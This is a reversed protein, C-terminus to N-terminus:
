VNTSLDSERWKTVTYRALTVGDAWFDPPLGAKRKLHSFFQRPDPLQEWVQPLFTGRHSAYEFIVGDIGPRLQGVADDESAFRMPESASLLSIEVLTTKLETATLPQFRPDLFAAAKANAKVDDLLKRHAQLSGICGRLQGHRTLTVFCAGHQHLFDHHEAAEFGMGLVGGIASRAIPILVEGPDDGAASDDPYFAFSAYGVVRSPDGATDGSNRLDLLRPGLGRRGAAVLLGNVPAAGCAQHPDIVPQRGLIQRVTSRDTAQAQAYTLYHSLDSSVVILTEDGGWLRDIVQAVEDPSARGVVLPVLTFHELVSQLFPLHVELSHELAHADRSVVVQSLGALAQVAQEDVPVSGLPTSFAQAGPLALGRVAVRHAPGLLVVRRITARAPALRAYVTAAIPGSYIYGAHPAIIAKPVPVDSHARARADALLEDVTRRLAEPAGPYFAGAVAAPRVPLDNYIQMPM